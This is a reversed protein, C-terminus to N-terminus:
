NGPFALVEVTNPKPENKYQYEYYREFYERKPVLREIRIMDKELVTYDSYQDFVIKLNEDFTKLHEILEKVTM